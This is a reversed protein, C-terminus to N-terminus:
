VSWVISLGEQSALLGEALGFIGWVLPIQFYIVMNVVARWTDSDQALHIWDM